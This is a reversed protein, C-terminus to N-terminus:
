SGPQTRPTSPPETAPAASPATGPTAGTPRDVDNLALRLAELDDVISEVDAGLPDIGESRNSVSLEIAQTVSEDLRANILDLEDRTSAILKDMRDATALQSQLSAITRAQTPNATSGEPVQSTQRDLEWRIERDNIAKRADAILQGQKAIRWCEQVADDLRGGVAELSEQLPGSRFKRTAEEFRKGAVKADIVAHRWPENVAFPDIKDGDAKPIALAVRGGYGVAGGVLGGIVALPISLPATAVIGIAAGIGLAVIAGPSTVARAVPPTYFRDRFSLSAM